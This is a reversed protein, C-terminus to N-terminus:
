WEMPIEVQDGYRTAQLGLVGKTDERIEIVVQSASLTQAAVSSRADEHQNHVIIADSQAQLANSLANSDPYTSFRKGSADLLGILPSTPHQLAITIIRQSCSRDIKIM